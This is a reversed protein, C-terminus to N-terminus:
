RLLTVDGSLKHELNDETVGEVTYVYVGVPQDIGDRKGDWGKTQTDSEFIVEGWNNYIKFKLTRFPGGYVYFIDNQGDGNPSFGSPVDPPM